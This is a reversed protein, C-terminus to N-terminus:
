SVLALIAILVAVLAVSGAVIALLRVMRESRELRRLLDEHRQAAAEEQRVADREATEVAATVRQSLAEVQRGLERAEMDRAAERQTMEELAVLARQDRGSVMELQRVISEGVQATSRKVEALDQGLRRLEEMASALRASEDAQAALREEVRQLLDAARAGQAGLRGGLEALLEEAGRNVPKEEVAVRAVPAPAAADGADPNL